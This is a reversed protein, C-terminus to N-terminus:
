SGPKKVTTLKQSFGESSLLTDFKVWMFSSRAVPVGEKLAVKAQNEPHRWLPHEVLVIVVVCYFKAACYTLQHPGACWAKVLTGWGAAGEEGDAHHSGPPQAGHPDAPRALTEPHLLEAPAASVERKGEALVDQLVAAWVGGEAADDPVEPWGAQVQLHKLWWCSSLPLQGPCAHKYTM